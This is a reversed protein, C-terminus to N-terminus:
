KIHYDINEEYIPSNSTSNMNKNVKGNSINASSFSMKLINEIKNITDEYEM